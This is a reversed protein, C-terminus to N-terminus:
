DGPAALWWMNGSPDRIGALVDGFPRLNPSMIETAGASIAKAFAVEVDPVYVYLQAPHATYEANAENMMIVSDGIRLRAHQISNDDRREIRLIEAELTEALFQILREAKAATIYPTVTHLGSSDPANTVKRVASQDAAGNAM